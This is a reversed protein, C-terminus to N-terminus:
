SSLPARVFEPIVVAEIRKQVLEAFAADIDPISAPSFSKQKGGFAAAPSKADTTVRDYYPYNRM